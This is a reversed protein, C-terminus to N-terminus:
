INNEENKNDLIDKTNMESLISKIKQPFPIGMANLNELFSLAENAVYFLITANRFATNAGIATDLMYALIVSLMIMAKKALGKAGAISSLKGDDTKNSKGYLAVLMGSIYDIVICGLLVNLLADCGGFLGSIAGFLASIYKIINQKM